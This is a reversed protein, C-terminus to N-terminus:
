SEPWGHPMAEDSFRLVQTEFYGRARCGAGERACLPAVSQALDVAWEAAVERCMPHRARELASGAADAAEGILTQVQDPHM